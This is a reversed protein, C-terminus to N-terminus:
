ENRVRESIMDIFARMVCYDLSIHQGTTCRGWFKYNIIVEGQQELRYLLPDSVVWWEYVEIYEVDFNLADNIENVEEDTISDLFVQFDGETKVRRNYTSEDNAIEKLKDANDDFNYILNERMRDYDIFYIDEYSIPANNDEYSKKIIYDIESSVCVHVCDNVYQKYEECWNFLDSRQKYEALIEKIRETKIHM